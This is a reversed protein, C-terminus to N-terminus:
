KIDEPDLSAPCTYVLQVSNDTQPMARFFGDPIALEGASVASAVLGFLFLLSAPRQRM